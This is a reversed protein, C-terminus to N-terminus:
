AVFARRPSSAQPPGDGVVHPLEDGLQSLVGPQERFGSLWEPRTAFDKFDNLVLL